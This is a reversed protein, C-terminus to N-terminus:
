GNESTWEAKVWVDNGANNEDYVIVPSVNSSAVLAYTGNETNSQYIEIGTAKSDLNSSVIYGNASGTVSIVTVKDALPNPKTITLINAIPVQTTNENRYIDLDTIYGSSFTLPSFGFGDIFENRTIKVSTTAGASIGSVTKEFYETSGASALHIKVYSPLKKADTPMTFSVILDQGSWIGSANTVPDPPTNDFEITDFAKGTAIESDISECGSDSLHNLKVYVTNLTDLTISAPGFGTYKLEWLYPNNTESVYVRSERYTGFGTTPDQWSVLIGNDIGTVNPKVTNAVCVPDVYIPIDFLCDNSSGDGYISTIKGVLTTQFVNGFNAMNDQQSLTFKYTDVTEKVAVTSFLPEQGAATLTIQFLKINNDRTVGDPLFPKEFSITLNAATDWSANVNIPCTRVAGPTTFEFVDSYESVGLDKDKYVWAFQAGYTTLLDLNPIVIDWYEGDQKQTIGLDPYQNDAM